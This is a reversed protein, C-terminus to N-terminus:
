MVTSGLRDVGALAAGWEDDAQVTQSETAARCPRSPLPTGARSVASPRPTATEGSTYGVFPTGDSTRELQPLVITLTKSPM